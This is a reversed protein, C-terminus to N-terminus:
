ARLQRLNSMADDVTMFYATKQKTNILPKETRTLNEIDLIFWDSTLYKFEIGDTVIPNDLTKYKWDLLGNDYKTQIENSSLSGFTLVNTYKPKIPTPDTYNGVVIGSKYLIRRVGYIISPNRPNMPAQYPPTTNPTNYYYVYKTFEDMYAEEYETSYNEPNSVFKLYEFWANNIGTVKQKLVRFNTNTKYAYEDIYGERCESRHAIYYVFADIGSQLRIALTDIDKEKLM